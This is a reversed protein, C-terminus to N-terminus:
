NWQSLLSRSGAKSESSRLQLDQRFQEDKLHIEIGLRTTGDHLRFM